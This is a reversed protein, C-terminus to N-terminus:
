GGRTYFELGSTQWPSIGYFEPGGNEGGGWEIGDYVCPLAEEGDEKILGWLGDRKAPVLGRWPVGLEDYEPEVRWEGDRDALGWKGNSEVPRLEPGDDSLDSPEVRRGAANFFMTRSGSQVKLLENQQQVLDYDRKIIEEGTSLDIASWKGRREVIALKDLPPEMPLIRSYRGDNVFEGTEIDLLGTLGDERATYVGPAPSAVGRYRCAAKEEGNTSIIGWLGNTSQASWLPDAGGLPELTQYRPPVLASGDVSVLGWLNSTCVSLVDGSWVGPVDYLAGTLRKGDRDLIGWRGDMRYAWCRPEDAFWRVSDFEPPATWGGTEDVLGWKGGSRAAARGGRFPTADAFRSSVLEVGARDIFGINGDGGISILLRDDQRMFAGTRSTRGVVEGRVNIYGFGGDPFSVVAVGNRFEPVPREPFVASLDRLPKSAIPKADAGIFMGDANVRAEEQVWAFGESWNACLKYRPAVQLSGDDPNIFGFKGDQLVIFPAQVEVETDNVAAEFPVMGAVFSVSFVAIAIKRLYKM